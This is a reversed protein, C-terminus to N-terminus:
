DLLERSRSSLQSGPLAFQVTIRSDSRWLPVTWLGLFAGQVLM